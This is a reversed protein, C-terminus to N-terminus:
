VPVRSKFVLYFTWLKWPLEDWHSIAKKDRQAWHGSQQIQSGPVSEQEVKEEGSEQWNCDM